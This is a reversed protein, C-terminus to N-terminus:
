RQKEVDVAFEASAADVVVLDANDEEVDLNVLLPVASAAVVPVTDLLVLAVAVASARLAIRVHGDCEVASSELKAPECPPYLDRIHAEPYDVQHMM